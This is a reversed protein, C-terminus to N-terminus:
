NLSNLFATFNSQLREAGNTQLYYVDRVANMNGIELMIAPANVKELLKFGATETLITAYYADKTLYQILEQAYKESATYKPNKSNFYITGQRPLKGAGMHFSIVLDPNLDNIAKARDDISLFAGSENYYVVKVNTKVDGAIQAVVSKLLDYETTNGATVGKDVESHGRDLVVTFVDTQAQLQNVFSWLILIIVLKFKM